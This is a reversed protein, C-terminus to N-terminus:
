SPMEALVTFPTEDLIAEAQAELERITKQSLATLGRRARDVHMMALVSLGEHDADVQPKKPNKPV